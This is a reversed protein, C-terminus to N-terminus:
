KAAELRLKKEEEEEEPLADGQGQLTGQLASRFVGYARDLDDNKIIVDHGGQRAYAMEGAAMALRKQIAEPTDTKRSELRQRLTALSPPAIFLFLPNLYAHNKKILIVGQTDIDLLARRRSADENPKSVDEVAKASTGYYNGGFQAYELFAGEEILKEFQSRDVYHYSEGPTEGARPSRTTHSVSFGYSNPFEAFLKKILTSKGVGSPGCLVVPRVDKSSSSGNSM